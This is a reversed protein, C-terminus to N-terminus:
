KIIIASLISENYTEHLHCSRRYSPYKAPNVYTDETIKKINEVGAEKLKSEVFAPLDFMYYNERISNIFFQKNNVDRDLFVQYYREDVEYSSQAIAPGIVAVLNKAGKEIMKAVINSIINDISGRWGAHAAGIIRGDNSALLVPVCDATQIALVLGKKTTISGDVEPEFHIVNDADIIQNGHVQRLILIDQAKFYAIISKRNEAIETENVFKNKKIYRNSSNKFTKDFIKYYVLGDILKEM